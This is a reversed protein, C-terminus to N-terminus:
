IKLVFRCPEVIYDLWRSEEASDVIFIADGTDDQVFWMPHNDMWRCKLEQAYNLADRDDEFVSLLETSQIMDPDNFTGMVAYAEVIKQMGDSSRLM